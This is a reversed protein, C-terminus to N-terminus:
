SPPFYVRTSMSRIAYTYPMELHYICLIIKFLFGLCFLPQLSPESTLLVSQEEFPGLNLEYTEVLPECYDPVGTGPSHYGRRQAGLASCVPLVSGYIYPLCGYV